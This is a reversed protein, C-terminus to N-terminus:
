TAQVLFYTKKGKQVLIFENHLLMSVDIRADVQEIKRRNLSIGGGQVLKRAEGKSALIGTSALFSVVDMGAELHVRPLNATIVGEIELLDQRSLSEAPASQQAFLKETTLQAGRLAEKGHVYATIEEALSKQLLRKSPDHAHAAELSEITAKDM